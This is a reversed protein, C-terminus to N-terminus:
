YDVLNLKVLPSVDLVPNHGWLMLSAERIKRPGFRTGSRYSTGSDFPIGVIAVDVRSLDRTAPQRMFTTIGSFPQLHAGLAPNPNEM